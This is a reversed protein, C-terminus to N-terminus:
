DSQWNTLASSWGGVGFIVTGTVTAAIAGSKNLSHARYALFAIILALIFGYLLQM